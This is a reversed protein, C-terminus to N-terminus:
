IPNCADFDCGNRVPLASPAQRPALTNAHYQSGHVSGVFLLESPGSYGSPRLYSPQGNKKQKKKPPKPPNKQRVPNLRMTLSQRAKIKAIAADFLAVAAALKGDDVCGEGQPDLCRNLRAVLEDQLKTDTHRLFKHSPNPRWVGEKDNIAPTGWAKSAETFPFFFDLGLFELGLKMM